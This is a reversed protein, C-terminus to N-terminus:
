TEGAAEEVRVPGARLVQVDRGTARVVTSEGGALRGGDLILDPGDGLQSAAEDASRASPLGSLNASTGTLWGGCEELLSICLPLAPVRVGVTGTGQHVEYPLPRRMACVITLAGPWHKAALREATPALVVLEAAARASACLIPIPKDPRRKVATLRAVAAEDFPDCGLGYVTDTPYVILGGTRVLSAARSVAPPSFPAIEAAKRRPDRM